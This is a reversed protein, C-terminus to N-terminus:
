VDEQYYRHTTSGNGNDRREREVGTAGLRWGQPVTMRVDYVGYDSFFETGAHFQHCNWGDEQLVGLKPFWQAIFFFNAIAGTRAFTRPVHAQWQVEITASGGPAIPQPLRVTMVTQDDRNGDDPAIFRKSPTLDSETPGQLRITSVDISAWEDSRRIYRNGGVAAERLWTSRPGRWANWYLHFQLEDTAKAAINRW